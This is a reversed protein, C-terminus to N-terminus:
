PSTTRTAEQLKNTRKSPTKIRRKALREAQARWAGTRAQAFAPGAAALAWTLEDATAAAIDRFSRYGAANLAGEISADIGDILTLDDPRAPADGREGEAPEVQQVLPPGDRVADVRRALGEIEAAPGEAPHSRDIQFTRADFSFPAPSSQAWDSERAELERELAFSRARQAHLDAELQVARLREKDLEARLATLRGARSRRAASSRVRAWLRGGALGMLGMAVAIAGSAVSFSGM